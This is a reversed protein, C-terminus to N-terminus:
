RSRPLEPEAWPEGLTPTACHLRVVPIVPGHPTPYHANTLADHDAQEGCGADDRGQAPERDGSGVEARERGSGGRLAPGVRLRGCGGIGSGRARDHDSRGLEGPDHVLAPGAGTLDGVGGQAGVQARGLDEGVGPRLAPEPPRQQGRDAAHLGVVPPGAVCPQVGVSDRRRGDDPGRQVAPTPHSRNGVAVAAAEVPVPGPVPGHPRHLDDRPRPGQDPDVAVTVADPRGAVDVVRRERHPHM